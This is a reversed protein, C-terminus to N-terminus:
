NISVYRNRPAAMSTGSLRKYSLLILQSVESQTGGGPAAVCWAFQMEM